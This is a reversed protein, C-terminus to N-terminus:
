EKVEKGCKECVKRKMQEHVSLPRRNERWNTDVNTIHTAKKKMESECKHCKM